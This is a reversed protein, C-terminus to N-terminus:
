SFNLKGSAHKGTDSSYSFSIATSENKHSLSLLLKVEQGPTIIQQFKINSLGSFNESFEFHERAYYEAWHTQVVGPLVPHQDFHGDFYRLEKPVILDLLVTNENEQATKVIVPLLVHPATQMFLDILDQHLVKSQSNRKFEAVFRWRRPLLPREFQTLLAEKLQLSFARRGIKALLCLGQTSLVIAAGIEIRKNTDITIIRAEEISTEAMLRNEMATISLRKGEVKVIKDSRGLLKFSHQDIGQALDSTLYWDDTMLHPSQTQLRSSDTDIKFIVNPLVNWYQYQNSHQQRWAIGGTESSGFVENINTHFFEFAQYSDQEKLPAGSSFVAKTLSRIHTKDLGEPLRSLHTPSSILVTEGISNLKNALDEIFEFNFRSFARQACIPWLIRFLLGYIHQHSVTSVIRASNIDCGWLQELSEIERSLQTLTKAIALPKGSSGSTFIEILPLEINLKSPMVALSCTDDSVATASQLYPKFIHGEFQGIFGDAHKELDKTTASNNIGPICSTKNLSWLAFLIASFEASDSHFVAWKEEKYQSLCEQWAHVRAQWVQWSIAKAPCFAFVQEPPRATLLISDLPIFSSLSSSHM